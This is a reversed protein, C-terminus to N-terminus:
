MILSRLGFSQALSGAQVTTMPSYLPSTSASRSKRRPFHVLTSPLTEARRLTRRMRPQGGLCLVSTRHSNRLAPITLGSKRAVEDVVGVDAQEKGPDPREETLLSHHGMSPRSIMAPSRTSAESVSTEFLGAVSSGIPSTDSAEAPSHRSPRRPPPLRGDGAPPREGDRFLLPDELPWAASRSRLAPARGASMEGSFPEGMVSDMADFDQAAQVREIMVGAVQFPHGSELPHGPGNGARRGCSSRRGDELREPRGEDDGGPIEREEDRKVVDDLARAEPLVTTRRGDVDVGRM